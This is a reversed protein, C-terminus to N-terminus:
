EDVKDFNLILTRQKTERKLDDFTKAAPDCNAPREHRLLALRDVVANGLPPNAALTLYYYNHDYPKTKMLLFLNGEPTVIGWGENPRNNSFTTTEGAGRFQVEWTETAHILHNESDVDLALNIKIWKEEIEDSDEVRHWAEYHGSLAQPGSVRSDPNTRLFELFSRLFRYPTEPDELEEPLLMNIDPHLLFSVIADLEEANPRLPKTRRKQVFQKVWQRVIEPRVHVDTYDFIEDCIGGWSAKRQGNHHFEYYENLSARILASQRDTYVSGRRTNKGNSM